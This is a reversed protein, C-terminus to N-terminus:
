SFHNWINANNNRCNIKSFNIKGFWKERIIAILEGEKIKININELVNEGNKYKYNVNKIDIM